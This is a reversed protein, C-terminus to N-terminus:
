VTVNSEGKLEALKAERAAVAAEISEFRGVHYRKGNREIEAEYRNARLRVGKPLKPATDLIQVSLAKRLVDLAQREIRNVYTPYIGFHAATENLGTPVGVFGYKYEIIARQKETLISMHQQLAIVDVCSSVDTDTEVEIADDLTTIEPQYISQRRSNWIANRVARDVLVSFAGKDSYQEICRLLALNGIQIIDLVDEYERKYKYALSVVYGAFANFLRERAAMDGAQAQLALPYIESSQIPKEVRRIDEIYYQYATSM